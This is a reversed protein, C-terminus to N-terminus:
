RAKRPVISAILEATRDVFSAGKDFQDNPLPIRWPGGNVFRCLLGCNRGAHHTSVEILNTIPASRQIVGYPDYYARNRETIWLLRRHTIALYDAPAHSQIPVIGWARSRTQRTANFFRLPIREDLMLAGREANAFKPDLEDGYHARDSAVQLDVAPAHKNTLERVFQEVPGNTRTNFLLTRTSQASAFSIWGVLLMHAYGTFQIERLPLVQM